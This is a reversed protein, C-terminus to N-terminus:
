NNNNTNNPMSVRAHMTYPSLPESLALQIQYPPLQHATTRSPMTVINPEAAFQACVADRPGTTLRETDLHSLVAFRVGLAPPVRLQVWGGLLLLHRLCLVVLVLRPRHAPCPGPQM